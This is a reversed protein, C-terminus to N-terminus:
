VDNNNIVDLLCLVITLNSSAFSLTSEFKLSMSSQVDSNHTVHFSCSTITLNSSAFFLTSEFKLFM